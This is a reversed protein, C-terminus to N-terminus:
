VACAGARTRYSRGSPICHATCNFFEVGPSFIIFYVLTGAISSVVCFVWSGAVHIARCALGTLVWPSYLDSAHLPAPLPALVSPHWGDGVNCAGERQKRTDGGKGPGSTLCVCSPLREAVLLPGTHLRPARLSAGCSPGAVGRDNNGALPPRALAGRLQCKTLETRRSRRPPSVASRARPATPAVHPRGPSRLRRFRGKSESELSLGPSRPWRAVGKLLFAASGALETRM